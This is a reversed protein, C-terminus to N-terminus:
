SASGSEGEAGANHRGPFLVAWPSQDPGVRSLALLAYLAMTISGLGMILVFWVIRATWTRERWAVWVYFCLFACYADLLTAMAWPNAEFGPWSDFVSLQRGAWLNVGVVALGVAVFLAQLVRKM